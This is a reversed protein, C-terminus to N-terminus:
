RKGSTQLLRYWVDIFAQGAVDDAYRAEVAARAAQGMRVNLAADSCLISLRDAMSTADNLPVLFGDKGDSIIGDPGGCRTAVVPVGCSMAEIVVMGFGEEDSPLALVTAHQYLKVLDDAEPRHVHTVRDSLGLAEVHAWYEPSPRGAGATVLNVHALSPPLQQFAKLLLEVNKRPDDLRGVCLIYPKAEGGRNPRPCFRAADVGPPSYSIDIDARGANITRAYELMWPNELQVADVARLARDDYRDTIETMAKRWWAKSGNSRADRRLREVKARTAVQLSVPKGLGIVANAWAPSGAVVQVISCDALANALAARPMYRQFEFESGLSGIRTFPRGEWLGERMQVGRRWTSPRFFAVSVDDSASQSLSILRLRFRDARLIVGCMFEAVAPVGGGHELAPVVLGVTFHSLSIRLRQM